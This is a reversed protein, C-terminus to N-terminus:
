AESIFQDAGVIGVVENISMDQETHIRTTESVPVYVVVHRRIRLPLVSFGIHVHKM